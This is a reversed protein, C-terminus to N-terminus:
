YENDLAKKENAECNDANPTKSKEHIRKKCKQM